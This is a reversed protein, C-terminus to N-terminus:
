SRGSRPRRSRRRRVATRARGFLVLQYEDVARRGEVAEGAHGPARTVAHDKNGFWPEERYGARFAGHAGDLQEALLESGLQSRCPDNGVPDTGGRGLVREPEGLHFRHEALQQQCRMNRLLRIPLLDLPRGRRAGSAQRSPSSCRWATRSAGPSCTTRSCRCAPVGYASLPEALWFGGGEFFSSAVKRDSPPKM